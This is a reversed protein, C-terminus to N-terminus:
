KGYQPADDALGAEDWFCRVLQLDCTKFGGTVSAIFTTRGYGVSTCKCEGRWMGVWFLYWECRVHAWFLKLWRPIQM